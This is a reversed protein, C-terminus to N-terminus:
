SLVKNEFQNMCCTTSDGGLCRGKKMHQVVLDETLFRKECVDCVFPLNHYCAKSRKHRDLNFKESCKKKCPPVCYYMPKVSINSDTNMKEEGEDGCENPLCGQVDFIIYSM